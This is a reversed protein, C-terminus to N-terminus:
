NKEDMDSTNQFVSEEFNLEEKISKDFCVKEGDWIGLYKKMLKGFSDWERYEYFNGLYKGEIRLTGKFDWKKINQCSDPFNEHREREEVLINRPNWYKEKCVRNMDYYKLFFRNGNPHWGEEVGQKKGQSYSIQRSLCSNRHYLLCKGELRGNVYEMATKVHGDKYYYEHRGHALGERFCLCSYLDGTPYYSHVKGERKGEYYWTKSLIKGKTSYYISPGHLLSIGEGEGKQLYFSRSKLSGDLHYRCHEGSFSDGKLVYAELLKPNEDTSYELKVRHGYGLDDGDKLTEPFRVPSFDEVIHISLSLDIIKLVNEEFIYAEESM